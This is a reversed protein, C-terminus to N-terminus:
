PSSLCAGDSRYSRILIPRVALRAAERLSIEKLTPERVIHDAAGFPGGDFFPHAKLAEYGGGAMYLCTPASAQAQFPSSISNDNDYAIVLTSDGDGDGAIM